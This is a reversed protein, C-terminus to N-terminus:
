NKEWLIKCKRDIFRKESKSRDVHMKRYLRCRKVADATVRDPMFNLFARPM